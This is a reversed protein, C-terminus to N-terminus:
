QRSGPDIVLTIGSSASIRTRRARSDRVRWGRSTAKETAGDDLLSRMGADDHLILAWPRPAQHM